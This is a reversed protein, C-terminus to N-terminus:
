SNTGDEAGYKKMSLKTFSTRKKIIPAIRKEYLRSLSEFVALSFEEDSMDKFDPHSRIKELFNDDIVPEM